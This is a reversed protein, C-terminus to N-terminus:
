RRRGRHGPDRPRRLGHGRGSEAHREERYGPCLGLLGGRPHGQGPVAARLPWEGPHALGRGHDSLGAELERLDPDRGGVPDPRGRAGGHGRGPDPWPQPAPRAAHAHHISRDDRACRPPSDSHEGTGEDRDFWWIKVVHNDGSGDCAVATPAGDEPTSDICVHGEGSPLRAALLQNWTYLDHAAMATSTCGTGATVCATNEAASGAGSMNYADAGVGRPNARMRDAMDRALVTAQSRLYAGQNMSLAVSQLGAVGLLGIGLVLAAVLVEVLTFGQQRRRSM